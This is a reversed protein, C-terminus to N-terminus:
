WVIGMYSKFAYTQEQEVGNNELGTFELGAFEATGFPRRTTISPKSRTSRGIVKRTRWSCCPTYLHFSISIASRDHLAVYRQSLELIQQLLYALERTPSKFV